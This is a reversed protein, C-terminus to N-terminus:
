VFTAWTRSGWRSSRRSVRLRQGSPVADVGNKSFFVGRPVGVPDAGGSARARRRRRRTRRPRCAARREHPQGVEGGELQVDGLPPEVVFPLGIGASRITKSRSGPGGASMMSQQSTPARAARAGRARRSSPMGSFTPFCPREATRASRAPTATSLGRRVRLARRGVRLARQGVHDHGDHVLPLPTPLTKMSQLWFLAALVVIAGYESRPM